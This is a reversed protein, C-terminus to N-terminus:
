GTADSKERREALIREYADIIRITRSNALDVIEPAMNLSMLKDPHYVNCLTYYTEKLDSDGISRSVGLIEYPDTVANQGVAQDLQMIKAITSKRIHLILGDSARIPLFQRPDNLLESIRQMQGTFLCGLFETGDDLTVQIEVTQKDIKFESEYM